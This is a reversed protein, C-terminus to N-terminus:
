PRVSTKTSVELGTPDPFVANISANHLARRFEYEIAATVLSMKV